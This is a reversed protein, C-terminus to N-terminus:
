PWSSEVSPCVVLERIECGAPQQLAFLVSRAVDDPRNLKAEPPPKYRDDRSDFFPTQMGGPILLTVGVAGALEAALARTFGVVGFKSACYATADSVARIGLTSAVTVIRGGTKKLAPLAGRIIAAAGTLNVAIVREWDDAPVDELTGCSDIGAATVVGALDPHQGIIERMVQDTAPRDALDVLRYEYGALPERLDLVIPTGGADAIASAIAAGLGSSGGTVLVPGLRIHDPNERHQV